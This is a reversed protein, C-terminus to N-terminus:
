ACNRDITKKDKLLDLLYGNVNFKLGNLADEMTVKEGNEIVEFGRHILWVDMYHRAMSKMLASTGFGKQWNDSDRLTGDELKRHKHMYKGFSHTVIPNEFGEFDLKTIDNNRTAGSKFTRM